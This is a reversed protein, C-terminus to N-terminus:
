EADDGGDVDDDGRLVARFEDTIMSDFCDRAVTHAAEAYEMLDGASGAPSVQAALSLKLVLAGEDGEVALRTLMQGRDWARTWEMEAALLSDFGCWKTEPMKLIRNLPLVDNEGRGIGIENEYRYVVRNLDSIELLELTRSLLDVADRIFTLQGPYEFSIYTAQNLAIALAESRDRSRFQQPRLATAYGPQANPVFLDPMRTSLERQVASLGSYVSFQGPFFTELSVSRLQQNRYEPGHDTV